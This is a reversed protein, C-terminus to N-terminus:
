SWVLWEPQTVSGTVQDHLLGSCCPPHIALLVECSRRWLGSRACGQSPMVLAGHPGPERLPGAPTAALYRRVGQGCPM